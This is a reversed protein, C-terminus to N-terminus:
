EELERVSIIYRNNISMKEGKFSYKILGPLGAPAGFDNVNLVTTKDDSSLVKGKYKFVSGYPSFVVEVEKGEFESFM